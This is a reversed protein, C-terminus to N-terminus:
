GGARVAHIRAGCALCQWREPDEPMACGGLVVRGADLDRGLRRSWAPYGYLVEAVRPSGCAPCRRPRRRAEYRRTEM